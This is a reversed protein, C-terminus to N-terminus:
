KFVGQPKEATLLHVKLEDIKKVNGWHNKFRGKIRGAGL